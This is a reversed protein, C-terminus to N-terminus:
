KVLKFAIDALYFRAKSAQNGEITVTNTATGFDVKYAKFECTKSSSVVSTLKVTTGNVLINCTDNLSHSAAYVTVGAVNEAVTFSISGKYSSAGFKLALKQAVQKGKGDFNYYAKTATFSSVTVGSVTAFDTLTKTTELAITNDCEATSTGNKYDPTFNDAFKISACTYDGAYASINVQSATVGGITAVAAVALILSSIGFLKKNKM